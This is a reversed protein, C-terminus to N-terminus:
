HRIPVMLFFDGWYTKGKGQCNWAIFKLAAAPPAVTRADGIAPHLGVGFPRGVSIAEAAPAVPLKGMAM